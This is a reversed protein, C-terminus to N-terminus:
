ALISAQQFNACRGNPIHIHLLGRIYSPYIRDSGLGPDTLLRKHAVPCRPGSCSDYKLGM